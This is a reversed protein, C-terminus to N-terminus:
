GREDTLWLRSRRNSFSFSTAGPIIMQRAPPWVGPCLTTRRAYPPSASTAVVM